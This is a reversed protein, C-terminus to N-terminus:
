DVGAGQIRIEIGIVRMVVCADLQELPVAARQDEGREAEGLHGM